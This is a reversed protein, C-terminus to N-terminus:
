LCCCMSDGGTVTALIGGLGAAGLTEDTVHKIHYGMKIECPHLIVKVDQVSLCEQIYYYLAKDKLRKVVQKYHASKLINKVM